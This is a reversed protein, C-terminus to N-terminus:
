QVVADRDGAHHLLQPDGALRPAHRHRDVGLDNGAPLPLAARQALAVADLDEGRDLSASIAISGVSRERAESVTRSSGSVMARRRSSTPQAATMGSPEGIPLPIPM